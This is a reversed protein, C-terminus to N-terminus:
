SPRDPRPAAALRGTISDGDLGIGAADAALLVAGVVPPAAPRAALAGPLGAMVAGALEPAPHGFVGGTLVVPCGDLALGVRAACVRAQAGLWGGARLVIERAVADGAAATDLLIPCLEQVSWPAIKDQRRTFAHLLDLADGAGFHGLVPGTLATAPGMGLGHREVAHLAETGLDFGGTRDPWFGCHFVDGAANRAGVANFTGCVVAIGVGDVTGSRLGGIADNVVTARAPALGLRGTLGRHLLDIDEPWDAGALSFAV